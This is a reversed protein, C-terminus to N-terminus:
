VIPIEITFRSGKTLSSELYITWKHKDIINKVISLGIGYGEIRHNGVVRFGRNFISTLSDEDIGLGNDELTVIIKQNSKTMKIWVMNDEKNIDKYKISNEVINLLVEKIKNKDCKVRLGKVIDLEIKVHNKDAYPTIFKVTEEIIEGIDETGIALSLDELKISGM